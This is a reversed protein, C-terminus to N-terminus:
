DMNDDAEVEEKDEKTASDEELQGVPSEEDCQIGVFNGDSDRTARTRV